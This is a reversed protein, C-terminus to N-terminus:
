SRGLHDRVREAIDSPDFQVEAWTFRLVTYGQAELEAQRKEDAALQAPTSHADEGDLEVILRHERWLMDPRYRGIRLNPEPIELRFRECLLVFDRELGNACRALQPLHADMAARLATTGRPARSLASQLSSLSLAGSFEARALVLRLSNHSLQETALLLARPLATVPLGRHIHRPIAHPHRICLDDRSATRGPADIHILSPRRHLFGNWWLHSLGALASGTGAYLLGAGLQGEVALDPRGFAYVGPYRLHLRGEALWSRIRAESFGIERLQRRAVCGFQRGALEGARRSASQQGTLDTFRMETPWTPISARCASGILVRHRGIRAM